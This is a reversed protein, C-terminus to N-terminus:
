RAKHRRIRDRLAAKLTSYIGGGWAGDFVKFWTKPRGFPRVACGIYSGDLYLDFVTDMCPSRSEKIRIM